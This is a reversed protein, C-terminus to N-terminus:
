KKLEAILSELEEIDRSSLGKADALHAVLPAARGNFLKDALSKTADKSFARRTIMPKYLYRRGETKHSLAGKEVLRSLLTKVTKPNWQTSTAVRECIDAAALPSENWLIKMVEFEAESIKKM